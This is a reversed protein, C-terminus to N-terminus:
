VPFPLLSSVLREPARISRAILEDHVLQQGQSDARLEALRFRAAAAYLGLDGEALGAIAVELMRLARTREGRAALLSAELAHGIAVVWMERRRLLRRIDREAQTLLGAGLACRARLILAILFFFHVQYFGAAKSQRWSIALRDWAYRARGRYLDIEARAIAEFEHQLRWPAAPRVAKVDSVLGDAEAPNDDCLAVLAGVRLAIIAEFTLNGSAELMCDRINRRIEPVNGEMWLMLLVFSRCYVIDWRRGIAGKERFTAVGNELCFRATGWRGKAFEIMGEAFQVLGRADVPDSSRSLEKARANLKEARVIGGGIYAPMHSSFTSELALARVIDVRSGAKLASRLYRRQFVEARIYDVMGLQKTITLCLALRRQEEPSVDCDRDHEGRVRYHRLGNWLLALMAGANSVPIPEGITKAVGRLLALGQDIHGARLFEDGARLLLDIDNPHHELAIMFELAAVGPRGANSLASARKIRIAQRAKDAAMELAVRYLAAAHDFALARAAVDAALETYAFAKATNGAARHHVALTEPDGQGSTEYADALAGHRLSSVEPALARLVHERIRDHYPEVADAEAVRVFSSAVLAHRAELVSSRAVGLARRIIQEDLPRGAISVLELYNRIHTERALGGIRLALVGDLTLEDRDLGALRARLLEGLFFPNGRSERVLAEREDPGLPGVATAVLERLSDPDLPCLAIDDDCRLKDRVYVLREGASDATEATPRYTLLLLVGAPLPSALVDKLLDVSDVDTWQFDDICIVIPGKAGFTALLSRFASVARTRLQSPEKASDVQSGKKSESREFVPFMTALVDREQEDLPNGLRELHSAVSDILSDIGKYPVSAGAYCAGHLVLAGREAFSRAVHTLLATKGIGSEGHVHVIRVSGSRAREFLDHFRTLEERRGVFPSRSHIGASSLGVIRAIDEGTPRHVPNPRLLQLSFEALDDPVREVFLRPDVPAARKAHAYGDFPLRGTLALYLLVGVAYWDVAETSTGEFQEPAMFAPTGRRRSPTTARALETMLGFDLIVVRDEATVLVNDPKIDCHVKGASHLALIGSVLQRLGSRIREVSATAIRESPQSVNAQEDTDSVTPVPHRPSLEPHVYRIFDVGAILEMLVFMGTADSILGYVRALNPHAIHELARFEDKFRAVQDAAIRRDHRLRKLAFRGGHVKDEVEFVFGTAGEGLSRVFQFREPIDLRTALM